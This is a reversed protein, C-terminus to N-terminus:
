RQPNRSNDINAEYEIYIKRVLGQESELLQRHANAFPKTRSGARSGTSLSTVWNCDENKERERELMRCVSQLAEEALHGDVIYEVEEASNSPADVGTPKM